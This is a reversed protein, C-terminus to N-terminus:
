KNKKLKKMKSHAKGYGGNRKKEEVTETYKRKNFRQFQADAMLEDVITKKKSSREHRENYHDLPNPLVKGVQFYKPLAKLDNKKYFHKPDLVSRMQIVELDRQVEETLETAPMNFWKDGKTKSAELKYIRIPLFAGINSCYNYRQSKWIFIVDFIDAWIVLTDDITWCCHNGEDSASLNDKTPIFTRNVNQQSYALIERSEDAFIKIM